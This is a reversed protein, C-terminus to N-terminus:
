RLELSKMFGLVYLVCMVNDQVLRVWGLRDCFKSKNSLYTCIYSFSILKLKVLIVVPVFHCSMFCHGLSVSVLLWDDYQLSM